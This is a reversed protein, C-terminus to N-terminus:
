EDIINEKLESQMLKLISETMEPGYIKLSQKKFSFM